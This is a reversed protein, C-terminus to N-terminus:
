RIGASGGGQPALVIHCSDIPDLVVPYFELRPGWRCGGRGAPQPFCGISYSILWCSQKSPAWLAWFRAPWLLWWYWSLFLANKPNNLWGDRHLYSISRMRYPGWCGSPHMLRRRFLPLFGWRQVNRGQISAVPCCGMQRFPAIYVRQLMMSSTADEAASASSHARKMFSFSPWMM